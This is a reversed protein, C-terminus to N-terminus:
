SRIGLRNLEKPKGTTATLIDAIAIAIAPVPTKTILALANQAHGM